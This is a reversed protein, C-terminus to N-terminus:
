RPSSGSARTRLGHEVLPELHERAQPTAFRETVVPFVVPDCAIGGLLVPPSDVLGRRQLPWANRDPDRACRASFTGKRRASPRPMGLSPRPRVCRALSAPLRAPFPVSRRLGGLPSCGKRTPPLPPVGPSALLNAGGDHHGVHLGADGPPHLADVGPTEPPRLALGPRGFLHATSHPLSRRLCSVRVPM